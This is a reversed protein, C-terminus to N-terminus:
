LRDLDTRAVLAELQAPDVQGPLLTLADATAVASAWVCAQGLAEGRGLRWVLGATFADGAGIPNRVTVQPPRIRWFTDGDYALTPHRGATVVVRRAGRQHLQRMAAMLAAQDPLVRGLTVALESWNPKVVDPGASLAQLLPPGHADLVALVGAARAQQVCRAYFDVPGGPTLSGSMVVARARDLRRGLRQSLQEYDGSQVPRSEEVLETHTAQAEDIVTLCQRTEAAVAVFDHEVGLRALEAALWDGRAGGVFGLAVPQQGLTKLVKAVNVAKGAATELVTATRNVTDLTLRQVVM